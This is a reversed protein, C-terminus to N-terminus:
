EDGDVFRITLTLVALMLLIGPVFLSMPWIDLVSDWWTDNM